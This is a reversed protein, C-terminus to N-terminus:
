PSAIRSSQHRQLTSAPPASNDSEERLSLDMRSAGEESGDEVSSIAGFIFDVFVPLHDSADHLAQAMEPSVATNPMANISDNFHNGDNGYATYTEVRVNSLLSESVLIQDFRDDLGGRVGAGITRVRTSQTHISAFGSDNNWDGPTSIPDVFTFDLVGSGGELLMQYATEDSSYVNLDGAIVYHDPPNPNGSSVHKLYEIMHDADRVREAEDQATNDANWQTTTLLVVEGTSRIRVRVMLIGRPDENMEAPVYSLLEVASTDIFAGLNLSVQGYPINSWGTVMPEYRIDLENIVRSLFSFYGDNGGVRSIEQVFLVTPRIENLIMRLEDDRDSSQDGYELINYTCVRITDPTQASGFTPLFLALLVGAMGFRM